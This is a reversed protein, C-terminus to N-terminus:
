KVGKAFDRFLGLDPRSNGTGLVGGPPGALPTTSAGHPHVGQSLRASDTM